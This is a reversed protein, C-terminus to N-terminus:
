HLNMLTTHMYKPQYFIHSICDFAESLDAMVAAFVGQNDSTKRITEIMYLLCNQAGFGKWFGWQIKSLVDNFYESMNDLM